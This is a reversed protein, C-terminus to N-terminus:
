EDAADSTYLLCINCLTVLGRDWTEHTDVGYEPPTLYCHDGIPNNERRGFEFPNLRHDAPPPPKRPKKRKKKNEEKQVINETQEDDDGSKKLPENHKNIIWSTMVLTAMLSGTDPEGGVHQMILADTRSSAGLLMRIIPKSPCQATGASGGLDRRPFFVTMSQIKATVRRPDTDTEPWEWNSDPPHMASAPTEISLQRETNALTDIITCSLGKITSAVTLPAHRGLITALTDPDHEALEAATPDRWLLPRQKIREERLQWLSSNLEKFIGCMYHAMEATSPADGIARAGDRYRKNSLQTSEVADAIAAEDCDNNIPDLRRQFKRPQAPRLRVIADAQRAMATDDYKCNHIKEYNAIARRSSEYDSRVMDKPAM